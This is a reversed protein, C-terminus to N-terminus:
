SAGEWANWVGRGPLASPAGYDQTEGRAAAEAARERLRACEEEYEVQMQAMLKPDANPEYVPEPPPTHLAEVVAARRAEAAATAAREADERATLADRETFAAALKRSLDDDVEEGFAAM